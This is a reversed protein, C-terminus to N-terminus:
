LEFLLLVKNSLYSDIYFIESQNTSGWGMGNMQQQGSTPCGVGVWKEYKLILGLVFYKKPCIPSLMSVKLYIPEAERAKLQQQGAGSM